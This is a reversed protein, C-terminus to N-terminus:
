SALDELITLLEDGEDTTLAFLSKSFRNRVKKIVQNQPIGKNKAIQFVRNLQGNTIRPSQEGQEEEPHQDKAEGDENGNPKLGYLHLGVGFQTACKKLCDSSAAKLDDGICLPENSQKSRTISSTGFQQHSIGHSSLEGLVVVEEELILHERICFSWEGELAQNLREIVYHSGVYDLMKGFRGKRKQILEKEFPKTLAELNLRGNTTTTDTTEM